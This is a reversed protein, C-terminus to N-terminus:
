YRIFLLKVQTCHAHRNAISLRKLIIENIEFCAGKMLKQFLNIAPVRTGM